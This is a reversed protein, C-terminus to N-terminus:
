KLLKELEEAKNADLNKLEKLAARAGELNDLGAWALGLNYWAASDGPKLKTAKQLADAAMAFQGQRAYATGLERWFDAHDPKLNAAVKFAWAAHDPKGSRSYALGLNYWDTEDEPRLCTAQQYADAALTFQEQKMYTWGLNEWAEAYEPKVEVARRLSAIAADFNGQRTQVAGLMCWATAYRPHLETARVCAAAAEPLQDQQELIHAHLLHALASRPYRRRVSDIRKQAEGLDRNFGASAAIRFDADAFIDNDPREALSAVPKPRTSATVSALLRRAAEVPIALGITRQKRQMMAIVGIVEGRANLVPSGSSGHDVAASVQIWGREGLFEQASVVEGQAFVGEFGHPNGVIAVPDGPKVRDSGGLPLAPLDREDVQLLVLDHEPDDALVGLVRHCRANRTKAFLQRGGRAVHRNTVLKGDNSVVFATGYATELGSADAVVLLLVSARAKRALETLDIEAGVCATTALCGALICGAAITKVLSGNM